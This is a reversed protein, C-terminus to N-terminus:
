LIKLVNTTHMRFFLFLLLLSVCIFLVRSIVTVKNITQPHQHCPISKRRKWNKNEINLNYANEGESM